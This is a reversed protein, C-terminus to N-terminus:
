NMEIFKNCICLPICVILNMFNKPVLLIPQLLPKIIWTNHSTSMTDNPSSNRVNRLTINRENEFDLVGFSNSIRFIFAIHQKSVDTTLWRFVYCLVWFFVWFKMWTWLCPTYNPANCGSCNHNDLGPIRLIHLVSMSILGCFFLVFGYRM